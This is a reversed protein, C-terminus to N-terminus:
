AGDRVKSATHTVAATSVTGVRKRSHSRGPPRRNTTRPRAGAISATSSRAVPSTLAGATSDNNSVSSSYRRPASGTGCNLKQGGRGAPCRDWRYGWSPGSTTGSGVHLYPLRQHDATGEGQGQRGGQEGGGGASGIEQLGVLHGAVTVRLQRDGLGVRQVGLFALDLGAGGQQRLDVAAGAQGARAALAFAHGAVELAGGAAVAQTGALGQEVPALDGAQARLAREARG